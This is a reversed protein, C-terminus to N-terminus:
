PQITTMINFEKRRSSRKLPKCRLCLKWGFFPRMHGEILAEEYDPKLNPLAPASGALAALLVVMVVGFVGFIVGWINVDSTPM